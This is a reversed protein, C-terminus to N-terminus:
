SFLHQLANVAPHCMKKSTVLLQNFVNWRIVMMDKEIEDATNRRVIFEIVDKSTGFVPTHKDICIDSVYHTKPAPVHVTHGEILLLFENWKILDSSWRFDNLFIVEAIDAGVWAYKDNAPNSFTKFVIELPRLLFTKGCNAPGVIIVNRLKGRGQSLLTRTGDAFVYPHVGSSVLVQNACTLWHGECVTKKQTPKEILDM